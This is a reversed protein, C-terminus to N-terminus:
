GGERIEGLTHVLLQSIKELYDKSPFFISKELNEHYLLRILM